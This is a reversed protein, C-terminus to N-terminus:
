EELAYTYVGFDAGGTPYENMSVSTLFHGSICRENGSCPANHQYHNGSFKWGTIYIVAFGSVQYTLNSGNGSYSSYMPILHPNGDLIFDKFAQANQPASNKFECSFNNGPSTAMRGLSDVTALCPQGDALKLWGFAGSGYGTGQQFFLQETAADAANPEWTKWWDPDANAPPEVKDLEDWRDDDFILPLGQGSWVGGCRAVARASVTTGDYDAVLASALVPPVLNTGDTTLTTATVEAVCTTSDLSATATAADDAANADTYYRATTAAAAAAAGCPLGEDMCEQVLALAAADAGNQLQRREWYLNGVDVALAGIGVLTVLLLAVVIAVAGDEQNLRRM